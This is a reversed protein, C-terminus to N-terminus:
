QVAESSLVAAQSSACPDPLGFPSLWEAQKEPPLRAGDPHFMGDLHFRAAPANPDVICRGQLIFGLWGTMVVPGEVRGAGNVCFFTQSVVSRGDWQVVRGSVGYAVGRLSLAGRCMTRRDLLSESEPPTPPPLPKPATQHSGPKALPRLLELVARPVDRELDELRAGSAVSGSVMRGSKTTHLKLSLKFVGDVELAEGSVILDAGILRGTEVECEGECQEPTKGSAQLLVLQNERSIMNLSPWAQLVTGRIRDTFYPLDVRPGDVPPVRSQLELVAM